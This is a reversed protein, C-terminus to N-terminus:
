RAYPRAPRELRVPLRTPGRFVVSRVREIPGAASIAATRELLVEIAVRAELRALAAGLCHHVGHGFSLHEGVGRALDFHDPNTFCREDRNASGILAMVTAGRPIRVGAIEVDRTATRFMAQVPADIRLTEEVLAGVLRPDRRVATGVEDEAILWAVASGILYATTISGAVLLTFVFVEFEEHSLAGGELEARLLVSILDDDESRTHAAIVDDLWAGMQEGSAAIRAQQEPGTPEFVALVMDESWRRFEERRQSDVGLLAAIVITPLPIAYHNQLDGAESAVLMDALAGAIRRVEGEYRAIRAPTFGRNVIKRLRAHHEGDLGIISIAQQPPGDFTGAENGIAVPRRVLEAMAESSFTEADHLVRRVDDYRSVAYADLTEVHHVPARRRLEAYVPYPDAQVESSLPDFVFTSPNM